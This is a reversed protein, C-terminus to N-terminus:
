TRGSGTVPCRAREDRRINHDLAAADVVLAPTPLDALKQM